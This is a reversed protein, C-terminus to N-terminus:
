SEDTMLGEFVPRYKVALDVFRRDTSIPTQLQRNHLVASMAVVQLEPPLTAHLEFWKDLESPKCNDMKVWIRVARRLQELNEM